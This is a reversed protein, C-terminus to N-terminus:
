GLKDLAGVLLRGGMSYGVSLSSELWLGLAGTISTWDGEPKRNPSRPRARLSPRRVSRALSHSFVAGIGLAGAFGHIFLSWPAEGRVFGTLGSLEMQRWKM